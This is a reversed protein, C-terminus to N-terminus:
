VEIAKIHAKTDWPLNFDSFIQEIKDGIKDNIVIDAALWFRDAEFLPFFNRTLQKPLLKCIQIIKQASKSSDFIEASRAAWIIYRLIYYDTANKRFYVRQFASHLLIYLTYYAHNTKEDNSSLKKLLKDFHTIWKPLFSAICESAMANPWLIDVIEEDEFPWGLICLTKAGMIELEPRGKIISYDIFLRNGPSHKETLALKLGTLSNNYLYKNLYKHGFKLKEEIGSIISGRVLLPEKQIDESNDLAIFIYLTSIELIPVLPTTISNCNWKLILSDSFLQADDPPSSSGKKAWKQCLKSFREIREAGEKFNKDLASKTGLIDIFAMIVKNTNM